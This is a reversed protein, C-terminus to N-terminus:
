ESCTLPLRMRVLTVPQVFADGNAATTGNMHTASATTRAHEVKFINIQPSCSAIEQEAANHVSRKARETTQSRKQEM